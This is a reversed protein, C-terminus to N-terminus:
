SSSDDTNTKVLTELEQDKDWPRHEQDRTSNDQDQDHSKPRTYMVSRLWFFQSSETFPQATQMFTRLWQVIIYAWWILSVIQWRKNTFRSCVFNSDVVHLSFHKSFIVVYSAQYFTACYSNLQESLFSLKTFHSCFHEVQRHTAGSNQAAGHRYVKGRALEQFPQPCCSELSSVKSVAWEDWTWDARCRDNVGAVFRHAQLPFFKALFKWCFQIIAVSVSIMLSTRSKLKWFGASALAPAPNPLFNSYQCLWQNEIISTLYRMM